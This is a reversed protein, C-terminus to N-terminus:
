FSNAAAHWINVTDGTVHSRAVGPAVGRATVTATQPSTSGGVGSITIREGSWDLDMPYEGGTTTLPSTSTIIVTGTGTNGICTGGTITSGSDMAVRGFEADDWYGEVPDDAPDTDFV